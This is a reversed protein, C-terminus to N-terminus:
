LEDNATENALEEEERNREVFDKMRSVIMTPLSYCGDWGKLVAGWKTSTDKDNPEVSVRKITDLISEKGVSMYNELVHWGRTKMMSEIARADQIDKENLRFKPTAHKDLSIDM